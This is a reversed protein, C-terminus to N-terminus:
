GRSWSMKKITLLSYIIIWSLAVASFLSMLPRYFWYKCERDEFRLVLAFMAGIIVVSLLYAVVVQIYRDRHVDLFIRTAVLPACIVFLIHAYYVFAVPFPKRWFFPINFFVNRIFSKKWRVQQKLFKGFTDPVITKSRASRSYVVDWKRQEYVTKTFKTGKYKKVVKAHLWPAGLVMATLTRDTAFRFESGLFTDDRWAPLFNYVAQKRYVALPGSVCTVTGYASEFAKRISFQGEMWADQVKTFTNTSANNARGHGSIAGVNPNNMLIRVVKKIANKDWVSDSDTHAFVEGKAQSMAECLAAKKGVNQKLAIIKLNKHTRKYKRLVKLTNDTSMDDVVIIEVNQYTQAFMSDLCQTVFDEENHVAVMCSVLPLSDKKFRGLTKGEVALDKYKILSSTFVLMHVSIVLVGYALLLSLGNINIAFFKSILFVFLLSIIVLGVFLKEFKRIKLANTKKSGKFVRPLERKKFPNTM